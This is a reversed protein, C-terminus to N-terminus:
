WGRLRLTAVEGAQVEFAGDPLHEEGTEDLRTRAASVRGLVRARATSASPNFCRLILGDSDEAGKLCSFVVSGELALPPELSVPEAVILFGYRYDQAARLLAVDDLDGAGPLLAYEFRHRGLCQGEPTAVQPGAARPRTVLAGEAQSIVGVCRLLTLCVESGDPIQRLEYEPLGKTVLAVTGAAVAGLTHQTPDPPEVWESRQAPPQPPRRVLAFASEARVPEETRDMPFVVRLRHDCVQNDITTQFEVRECGQVLRVVTRVALTSREDRLRFDGDLGAPRDAQIRVELEHLLPGDRLVRVSADESRWMPPSEIQCFNYLDGMDPEDELRHLGGLWDGRAKDLLTLTGDRAAQVRFRDSEIVAGEVDRPAPPAAPTLEVTRAAFGDLEVLEPEAGPVEVLGSRRYPLVNVV